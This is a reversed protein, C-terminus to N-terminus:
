MYREQGCVNTKPLVYRYKTEYMCRHKAGLMQIKWRVKCRHRHRYLTWQVATGPQLVAWGALWMFPHFHIHASEPNIVRNSNDQLTVRCHETNLTYQENHLTFHATVLTWQATHMTCHATCLTNLYENYQKINLHM